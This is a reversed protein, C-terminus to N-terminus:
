KKDEIRSMGDIFSATTSGLTEGIFQAGPLTSGSSLGEGLKSGLWNGLTNLFIGKYVDLNSMSNFQLQGKISFNVLSGPLSSLFPNGILTSSATSV